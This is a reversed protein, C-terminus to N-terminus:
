QQLTAQPECHSAHSTAPLTPAQVCIGAPWCGCPLRAGHVPAPASGHPPEHWGPLAVWHVYGAVDQLLGLQPPDVNVGPVLQEFPVHGAPTGAAQGFLRSHAEIVAQSEEHLTSPSQVLPNCQQPLVQTFSVVFSEFQPPQPSAHGEPHEAPSHRTVSAEPPAGWFM